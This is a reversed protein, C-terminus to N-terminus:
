FNVLISGRPGDDATRSSEFCVFVFTSQLIFIGHCILLNWRSLSITTDAATELTLLLSETEVKYLYIRIERSMWGSLTVKLTTRAAPILEGEPIAKVPDPARRFLHQWVVISVWRRQVVSCVASFTFVCLNLTSGHAIHAQWWGDSTCSCFYSSSILHTWQTWLTQDTFIIYRCISDLNQPLFSFGKETNELSLRKMSFHRRLWRFLLFPFRCTSYGNQM